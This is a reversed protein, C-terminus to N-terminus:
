SGCRHPALQACRQYGLQVGPQGSLEGLERAVVIQGFGYVVHQAAPVGEDAEEVVASDAEGVIGGFTRQAAHWKAPLGPQEAARIAAALSGRHDVRQDLGGLEVVDIGLGPQGIDEGADGAVGSPAEIVEQRPVPLGVASVDGGSM